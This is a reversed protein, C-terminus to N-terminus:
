RPSRIGRWGLALDPRRWRDAVIGALALVLALALLRRDPAGLRGPAPSTAAAPPPLLPLASTAQASAVLGEARWSAIEPNVGWARAEVAKARLHLRQVVGASSAWVVGYVGAEAGHLRARWRGPAVPEAGITRRLGSPLRLEFRPAEGVAAAAGVTADLEIRLAEAEDAVSLTAAPPAGAAWSVLGGALAPWGDWATWRPTWVGLGSAVFGSRGAGASGVVLLPDGRESALVVRAEQRARTTAYAAVPPWGARTEPAFPLPARQIVAIDGREIRARQRQVGRRMAQPLEAVEAVRLIRGGGPGLLRAIAAADADPGVALWVVEVGARALRELLAPPPMDDAQGDSVVVLLRRGGPVSDFLGAAADLAPTLRTGGAPTAPWDRALAQAAQAAPTPPLLVRAEADFVLLAARDRAPLASATELVARQALRFRDVGASGTGMSGSKDVAFVVTAADELTPPEARVPLLSELTSGRLDGSAATREGALVLLGLGRENVAAALAGWFSQPADAVAVDDLVVARFGALADAYAAARSAPAAELPWGGARLSAALPGDTGGLLLVPARAEIEVLAADPREDLHRGGGDALALDIILPGPLRPTLRLTAGTAGVPLETEAALSEGDPQRASARVRLVEVSPAPLRVGLEIPEGVVARGPTMLDAISAPPPPRGVEVWHVALGAGAAARLARRTDGATAYGDSLLVLADLRDRAHLALAADIAAEVDTAAPDIAAIRDPGPLVAADAATGTVAPDPSAGAKGFRGTTDARRSVPAPRGAFEISRLALGRGRQLRQVTQTLARDTLERPMSDSRDVLLLGRPQEGRWAPVIAGALALLLALLALAFLAQAVTARRAQVSM